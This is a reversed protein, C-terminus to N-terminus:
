KFELTCSSERRYKQNAIWFVAFRFARFRNWRTGLNVGSHISKNPDFRVHVTTLTARTQISYERYLFFHYL